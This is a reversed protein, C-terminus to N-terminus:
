LNLEAEFPKEYLARHLQLADIAERAIHGQNELHDAPVELSITHVDELDRGVAPQESVRM